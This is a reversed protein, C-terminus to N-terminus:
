FWTRAKYQRYAEGFREELVKGEARARMIQIPILILFFWFYRPRNVYLFFGAILIASFVYVPNRIRSYIGRTVLVKAKPVISFSNGLQLRAVVLAVAGGLMLILGLVRLVSWPQGAAKFLVLAVLIVPAIIFFKADRNMDHTECPLDCKASSSFARGAWLNIRPATFDPQAILAYIPAVGSQAGV